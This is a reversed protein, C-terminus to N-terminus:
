IVCVLCEAHKELGRAAHDHEDKVRHRPLQLRSGVAVSATSHGSLWAVHRAQTGTTQKQLPGKVRSRTRQILLHHPPHHSSPSNWHGFGAIGVTVGGRGFCHHTSTQFVLCSVCPTRPMTHNLAVGLPLSAGVPPVHPTELRRVTPLAGRQHHSPGASRQRAFAHATCAAPDRTHAFQSFVVDRRSM